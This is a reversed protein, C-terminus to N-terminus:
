DRWADGVIVEHGNAIINDLRKKTESPLHSLHRSGGIFITNASREQSSGYCSHLRQQRLRLLPTVTSEPGIRSM